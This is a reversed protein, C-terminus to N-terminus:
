LPQRAKEILDASAQAWSTKPMARILTERERLATDDHLYRLLKTYLQEEDEPDFYDAHIGAAEPISAANSALCFKGYSISEAAPLGYGEVLSPFVTFRCHTYLAHLQADSADSLILVKDSSSKFGALVNVFDRYKKRFKGVMVLKIGSDKGEQVIRLWVRLLRIQNKSEAIRGVSLLYRSVEVGNPLLAQPAQEASIDQGFLAKEIPKEAGTFELMYRKIEQRNYDSSTFFRDFTSFSDIVFQSFRRNAGPRRENEVPIVDHLLLQASLGYRDKLRQINAVYGGIIWSRGVNLLVDGPRFDPTPMARRWLLRSAHFRLGSAFTHWLYKARQRPYKERHDAWPELRANPCLGYFKASDFSARGALIESMYHILADDVLAVEECARGYFMICKAGLAVAHQAYNMHVRQIGTVTSNQKVWQILDTVDLYLTPTHRTV